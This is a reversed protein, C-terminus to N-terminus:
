NMSKCLYPVEGSAILDPVEGRLKLNLISSPVLNLDTLTKAHDEVTFVGGGPAIFDFSLDQSVLNDRVFSMVASLPEWSHFTGQLITADPCKVRVVAYRYLRREQIGERQRMEKTRLTLEREAIQTKLQQEKKIEEKSLVYFEDPLETKGTLDDTSELVQMNRDLIPEIAVTSTLKNRDKILDAFDSDVQPEWVWYEEEEESWTNQNPRLEKIFGAAELFQEAGFVFKVKEQFSPNACRIQRYKAETPNRIINDLIKQLVEVCTSVKEEPKNCSYLILCATALTSELREHDKDDKLKMMLHERIKNEMESRSLLVDDGLLSCRYFVGKVAYL